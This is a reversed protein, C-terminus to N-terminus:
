MPQLQALVPGQSKAVLTVVHNEPEKASNQGQVIEPVAATVACSATEVVWSMLLRNLSTAAILSPYLTGTSSAPKAHQSIEQRNAPIAVVSKAGQKPATPEIERANTQALAPALATAKAVGADNQARM